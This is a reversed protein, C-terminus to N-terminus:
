QFLERELTEKIQHPAFGLKILRTSGRIGKGSQATLILGYTELETIYQRYWRSSVPSKELSSAIRKYEDNIEGSFLVSDEEGETIRRVGKNHASLSAIAYLV